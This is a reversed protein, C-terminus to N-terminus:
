EVDDPEDQIEDRRRSRLVRLLRALEADGNAGPYLFANLFNNTLSSARIVRVYGDKTEGIAPFIVFGRQLLTAQFEEATGQATVKQGSGAIAAIMEDFQATNYTKFALHFANMYKSIEAAVAM